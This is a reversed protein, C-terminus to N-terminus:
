SQKAWTVKRKTKHEEKSVLAVQAPTLYKKMDTISIESLELYTDLGLIEIIKKKDTISTSKGKAAFSLLYTLTKHVGSDEPKVTQDIASLLEKEVEEFEKQEIKIAALKPDLVERLSCYLDVLKSLSEEHIQKESQLHALAKSKTQELLQEAM